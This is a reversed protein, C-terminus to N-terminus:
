ILREVLEKILVLLTVVGVFVGVFTVAYTAGALERYAPTVTRTSVVPRGPADQHTQPAIRALRQCVIPTREGNTEDYEYWIGGEVGIIM